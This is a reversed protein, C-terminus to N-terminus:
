CRVPPVNNLLLNSKIEVRNENGTAFGSDEASLAYGLALCSVARQPFPYFKQDLGIM